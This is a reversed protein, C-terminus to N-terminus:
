WHFALLIEQEEPMAGGGRDLIHLADDMHCAFIIHNFMEHKGTATVLTKGSIVACVHTSLHLRKAPLWSLILDVYKKM